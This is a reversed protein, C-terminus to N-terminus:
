LSSFCRDVTTKIETVLDITAQQPNVAYDIASSSSIIVKTLERRIRQEDWKSKLTEVIASIVASASGGQAGIGPILIPPLHGLSDRFMQIITKLEELQGQENVTGGVVVGIGAEAGYESIWDLVNNVMVNYVCQARGKADDYSIRQNIILDYIYEDLVPHTELDTRSPNSTLVLTYCGLGAKVIPTISDKGMYGHCTVADFMSYKQAYQSQTRMIDGIKTDLIVLMGLEHARILLSHMIGHWQPDTLSNYYALNPKIVTVGTKSIALLLDLAYREVSEALTWEDRLYPGNPLSTQTPIREPSIDIGVCVSTTNLKTLQEIYSM